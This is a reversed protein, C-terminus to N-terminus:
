GSKQVMLLICSMKKPWLDPIPLMFDKGVLGHGRHKGLDPLNTQLSSIGRSGGTIM